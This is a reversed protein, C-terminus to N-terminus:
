TSTTKRKKSRSNSLRVGLIEELKAEKVRFISNPTVHKLYSIATLDDQFAKYLFKAMRQESFSLNDARLGDCILEGFLAYQFLVENHQRARADDLRDKM